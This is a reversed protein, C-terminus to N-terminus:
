GTQQSQPLPGVSLFYIYRPPTASSFAFISRNGRRSESLSPNTTPQRILRHDYEMKMKETLPPCM